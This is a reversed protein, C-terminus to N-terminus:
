ARLGLGCVEVPRALPSGDVALWVLNSGTFGGRPSLDEVTGALTVNATM